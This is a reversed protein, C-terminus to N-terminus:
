LRLSGHLGRSDSYLRRRPRVGHDAAPPNKATGGLTEAISSM